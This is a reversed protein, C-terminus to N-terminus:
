MRTTQYIPLQSDPYPALDFLFSGKERDSRQIRLKKLLETCHRCPHCTELTLLDITLSVTITSQATPTAEFLSERLFGLLSLTEDEACNGLPWRTDDSPPIQISRLVPLANKRDEIIQSRIASPGYASFGIVAKSTVTERNADVAQCVLLNIKPHIPLAGPGYLECRSQEAKRVIPKLAEAILIVMRVNDSLPQKPAMSLSLIAHVAGFFSRVIYGARFLNSPRVEIPKEFSDM